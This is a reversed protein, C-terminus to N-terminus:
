GRVKWEGIRSGIKLAAGASASAYAATDTSVRLPWVKYTIGAQWLDRWMRTRASSNLILRWDHRYWRRKPSMDLHSIGRSYTDKIAQSLAASDADTAGLLEARADRLAAYWKDMIRRCRERPLTLSDLVRPTVGLECLLDLTPHAAWREEGPQAYVGCPHPLRPEPNDPTVIRWLGARRPDYPIPGTKCPADMPLYVGPVGALYQANRDVVLGARAHAEGGIGGAPWASGGPWGDERCPPAQDDIWKRLVDRGRVSVTEDLLLLSTTGGDAYFPVGTLNAYDQHRIAVSLLDPCGAMLPDNDTQILPIKGIRLRDNGRRATHWAETGSVTWEGSLDPDALHDWGPADTILVQGNDGLAGLLRSLVSPADGGPPAKVDRGRGTIVRDGDLVIVRPPLKTM